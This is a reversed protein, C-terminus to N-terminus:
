FVGLHIQLNLHRFQQEMNQLRYYVLQLLHLLYCEVLLDMELYNQRYQQHDRVGVGLAQEYFIPSHHRLHYPKM